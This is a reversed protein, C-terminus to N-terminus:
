QFRRTSSPISGFIHHYDVYSKAKSLLGTLKVRFEELKELPNGSSVGLGEDLLTPSEIDTKIDM